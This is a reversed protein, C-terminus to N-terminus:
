PELVDRSSHDGDPVGFRQGNITSVNKRRKCVAACELIKLREIEANARAFIASINAFGMLNGCHPCISPHHGKHDFVHDCQGCLWANGLNM